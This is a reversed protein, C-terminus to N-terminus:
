RAAVTGSTTGVATILPLVTEFYSRAAEATGVDRGAQESLFWRHELIEHFVEPPALRGLLDAPISDVVPQYVEAVWRHGAVADPLERGDLRELWARHSRLDDLLRRAQNEGVELGSLRFLERRYHGPEAVRTRVRVVSEEASTVLEIEGAGFGLDTLRQLRQVLGSAQDDSAVVEERTLEHWLADYKARLGVATAVPDVGAPLLGDAELDLLEAGVREVTLEIDHLRQGPSLQLHREVTEADVLHATMSGADRRFLTNSLSCDGWFVGDLHLRVLLGVMTDILQEASFDGRPTSFLSRYSVSYDLYRTILIAPLDDPRDVCIGLVDVTPLGQAAFDTLLAYEKRALPEVIEKLAYVTGGDEVFRVVHRSIGRRGVDTLVADPWTGLPRDWPLALLGAVDAASPRLVFRV